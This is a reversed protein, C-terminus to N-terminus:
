TNRISSLLLKKIQILKFGLLLFFSSFVNRLSVNQMLALKVDDRVSRFKLVSSIESRPLFVFCIVFDLWFIHVIHSCNKKTRGKCIIASENAMLVSIICHISPRIFSYLRRGKEGRNKPHQQPGALGSMLGICELYALTHTHARRLRHM